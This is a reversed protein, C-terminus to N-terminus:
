ADSQRAVAWSFTDSEGKPFVGHSPVRGVIMGFTKRGSQLSPGEVRRM